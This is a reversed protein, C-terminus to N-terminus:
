AEPKAVRRERAGRLYLLLLMGVSVIFEQLILVQWRVVPRSRAQAPPDWLWGYHWSRGMSGSDLSEFSFPPRLAMGAMLALSVWATARQGTSFAM